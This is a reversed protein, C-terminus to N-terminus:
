RPYKRTCTKRARRTPSAGPSTCPWPLSIAVTLSFCTKECKRIKKKQKKINEQWFRTDPGRYSSEQLSARQKRAIFAGRSGRPGMPSGGPGRPANELFTFLNIKPANRNQKKPWAMLWSSFCRMPSSFNTHFDGVDAKSM